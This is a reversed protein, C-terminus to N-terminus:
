PVVKGAQVCMGAGAFKEFLNVLDAYKAGALVVAQRGRVVTGRETRFEFWTKFAGTVRDLRFVRYQKLAVVSDRFTNHSHEAVIVTDTWQSTTLPHFRGNQYLRLAKSGAEVEFRESSTKPPQGLMRNISQMEKDSASEYKCQLILAQAPLAAACTGVAAALSLVTRRM